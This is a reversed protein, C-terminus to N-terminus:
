FYEELPLAGSHKYNCSLNFKLVPPKEPTGDTYSIAGLNVGSFHKSKQLNTLWTALAFNSLANATCKVNFGGGAQVLDVNNIWVDSPMIPLLDEFFVPYILRSQNLKRILDRKATLASKKSNIEAIQSDVAKYRQLDNQAVQIKEELRKAQADKIFWFSILILVIVGGVSGFIIQKEKKAQAEIYEIPLLNIKIM